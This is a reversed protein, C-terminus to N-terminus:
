PMMEGLLNDMADFMQDFIGGTASVFVPVMFLFILLGIAVKLPIGIVFINMQPATRVIVGLAVELLMASAMVPLTIQVAIVFCRIFLDLMLMPLEPGIAATGVPIIELTRGLVAFVRSIGDAFIFTVVMIINLIGATVAAQAGISIDFVQALSLGVQMDIIQGATYVINLFLATVFGFSLGVIMERVAAGLLPWPETYPYPFAPPSFNILVFATLVSLGIKVMSPVNQRNLLPTILLLASVRVVILMFHIIWAFYEEIYAATM